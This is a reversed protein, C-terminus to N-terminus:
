RSNRMESEMSFLESQLMQIEKLIIKLEEADSKVLQAKLIQVTSKLKSARVTVMIRFISHNRNPVSYLEAQAKLESLFEAIAPHQASEILGLDLQHPSRGSNQIAIFEEMLIASSEDVSMENRVFQEIEAINVQNAEAFYLHALLERAAGKPPVFQDPAGSVRPMTPPIVTKEAKLQSMLVSEPISSLQSIRSVLFAQRVPDTTQRLWPLLEKNVIEPISSASAGLLRHQVAYQLLDTASMLLQELKEPGEESLFEDPDYENPLAVVKVRLEPLSMVDSLIRLIANQGASDGDFLLYALGTTHNLMKLHALTLATGQSAVTESFGNQWMKIADLYGEVIIARGKNKISTRAESLGFLVHGKDYRSNKYKQPSDDLARGGFAILRGQGDRIPITVRNRFFDYWKKDNEYYTALSCHGLEEASHGLEKLYNILSNSSNLALGFGHKKLVDETFGREKLYGLAKTGAKSWLNQAFFDQAALICKIRRLQVKKDESDVKQELESIDVGLKNGLWKLSDIFGLGLHKRVFAIADGHARCGFCHFHDHYVYFSPTKENHFPCCGRFNGSSKQLNVFESVIDTLVVKQLIQNKVRDSM